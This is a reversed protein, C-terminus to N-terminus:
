YKGADLELERMKRIADDMYEDKRRMLRKMAAIREERRCNEAAAEEERIVKSLLQENKLHVELRYLRSRKRLDQYKERKWGDDNWMQKMVTVVINANKLDEKDVAM